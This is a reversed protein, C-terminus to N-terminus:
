RKAGAHDDRTGATQLDRMYDFARRGLRIRRGSGGCRRCPRPPLTFMRRLWGPGFPLPRAPRVGTRDCRRCSGLPRWACLGVYALAPLLVVVGFVVIGKM